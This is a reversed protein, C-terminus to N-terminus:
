PTLDIEFIGTGSPTITLTGSSTNYSAGFCVEVIMADALDAPATAADYYAIMGGINSITTSAVTIPNTWSYRLSGTTGEAFTPTVSAGSFATSLLVGGTSWGTGTLENTNVWHSDTTSFNVPSSGDTPPSGSSSALLSVKQASATTLNIPGGTVSTGLFLAAVSHLYLGSKTYAM